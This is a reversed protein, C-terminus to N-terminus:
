AAPPLHIFTDIFEVFNFRLEKGVSPVYVSNNFGFFSQMFGHADTNLQTANLYYALAPNGQVSAHAKLGALIQFQIGKYFAEHHPHFCAVAIELGRPRFFDFAARILHLFVWLRDSQSFNIDPHDMLENNQALMGVEVINRYRTRLADVNDKYINDMPLGLPSDEVCTFTALLYQQKYMAVFTHAKNTTQYISLRFDKEQPGTYNKKNYQRYVLKSAAQFEEISLVPRFECQTLFAPPTRLMREFMKAQFRDSINKKSKM